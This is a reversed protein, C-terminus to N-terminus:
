LDYSCYAESRFIFYSIKWNLDQKGKIEFSSVMNESAFPNVWKFLLLLFIGIIGTILNEVTFNGKHLHFQLPASVCKRIKLFFITANRSGAGTPYVKLHTFSSNKTVIPRSFFDAHKRKTIWKANILIRRSIITSFLCWCCISLSVLRTLSSKM